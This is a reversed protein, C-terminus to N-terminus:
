APALFDAAVYGAFRGDPTVVPVWTVGQAAVVADTVALATGAALETVVGAQRSPGDRLNVADITVVAEGVVFGASDGAPANGPATETSGDPVLPDTGAGFVEEGDSVGDGDTDWVLPQTGYTSVEDGDALADADTDPNAPDTGYTAEDADSLNDADVDGSATTAEDTHAGGDVPFGEQDTTTGAVPAHPNAHEAAMLNADAWIVFQIVRNGGGLDTEFVSVGGREPGSPDPPV